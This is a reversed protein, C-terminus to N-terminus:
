EQYEECGPIANTAGGGPKGGGGWLHQSETACVPISQSARFGSTAGVLPTVTLRVEHGLVPTCADMM